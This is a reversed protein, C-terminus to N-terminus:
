TFEFWRTGNEDRYITVRPDGAPIQVNADIREGRIIRASARATVGVAPMSAPATPADAVAPSAAALLLAAFSM